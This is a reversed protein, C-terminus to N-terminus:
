AASWAPPRAGRPRDLLARAAARPRPVPHRLGQRLEPRARPQHGDAPGQRRGDHAECTMTNIAGAFRESAPRRARRARADRAREGHLRPLGRPPHAARLRRRRRRHRARHPGGALPVRTTRLFIRPGCSGACSTRGSTSCCRCTATPSSGSPWSSASSRRALDAARRGAGRAGQRRRDTVVALEPSFGEVHEAERKLYSEPIFLPFYVNEAGAPRSARTWRPRCGSGSRTATPGSSWRAACRGTRPSSPRPSSTRTGGPSTTRARPSSRPRPWRRRMSASGRSRSLLDASRYGATERPTACGPLAGPQPGPPRLNLDERGSKEEKRGVRAVATARSQCQSPM